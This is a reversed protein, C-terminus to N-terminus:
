ISAFDEGCPDDSYTIYRKNSKCREVIKRELDIEYITPEYKVTEKRVIQLIKEACEETIDKCVLENFLNPRYKWWESRCLQDVISESFRYKIHKAPVGGVIEYPKVDKTVVAGAAIVAGDGISVGDLITVRTGIWVDNGIEIGKIICWKESKTEDSIKNQEIFAGEFGNCEKWKTEQYFYDSSSLKSLPHSILGITCEPAISSYRGICKVNRLTNRENIFTFAGIESVGMRCGACLFVPSEIRVSKISSGFGWDIEKRIDCKKNGKEDVFAIDSNIFM